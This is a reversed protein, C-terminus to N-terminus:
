KQEWIASHALITKNALIAKKALKKGANNPGRTISINLNERSISQHIFESSSKLYLETTKCGSKSCCTVNKSRNKNKCLENDALRITRIQCAGVNQRSLVRKIPPYRILCFRSMSYIKGFTTNFKTMCFQPKTICVQLQVLVTLVNKRSM